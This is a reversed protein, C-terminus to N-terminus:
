FADTRNAVYQNRLPLHVLTVFHTSGTFGIKFSRVIEASWPPLKDRPEISGEGRLIPNEIEGDRLYMTIM